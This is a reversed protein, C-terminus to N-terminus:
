FRAVAKYQLGEKAVAAPDLCNRADMVLNGRMLRKMRKLDALKFEDWDTAIIVVDADALAEEMTKHETVNDIPAPLHAKPDYAHIEAGLDSLQEMLAIAPSYRTDDTNPKFAIGLIAMKRGAMDPFREKLKRLYLDVQTLNIKQVAQLILPTINKKLASHELSRVDKPFCSGGYGIGSQLFHPSIRPDLGIGKVVDEINVDYSDCIRAIENIFSIKTALFANSTYKIMEAGSLSTVVFPSALKKYIEKMIPLSRDDTEKKGIVIKDAHFMDQLASGERLFEPNSVVTFLAPDLGKEILSDHIWENTGPPVTSKTVITTYSTITEALNDIVTQVYTLDTQGDALAPTGVAIFVVSSQKIAINPSSSFSLREKNKKVLEKLGPEYIPIEGRTLAQVKESNTDVCCVAHGLDALVAAQTLGVYGAGIVCIDM